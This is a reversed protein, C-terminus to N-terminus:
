EVRLGRRRIFGGWVASDSEMRGRIDAATGALPELTQEELRRRVSGDGLARRFAANLVDVAAQPMGAPGLVAFWGPMVPADLGAERQTPVEPLQPVRREAVAALPVVAGAAIQPLAIGLVPVMLDTQGAVVSTLAPGSGNYPVHSLRLGARDAIMEAALHTSNGIGASAYTVEGPRARAQAVLDRMSTIGSRRSAVLVFPTDTVPAVYTFDRVPDYGLNAYLHPNFSLQSVGSLLLTHGDPRSQKLANIAVLGNAGPRSEIVLPQGLERSVADSMIRAVTDGGSGPGQPLLLRVPQNPFAPQGRAAPGPIATAAVLAGVVAGRRGVPARRM